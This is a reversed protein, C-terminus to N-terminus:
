IDFRETHVSEAPVGIAPLVREMSNMLPTPGCVFYQFRRYQRPLHRMLMEATIHGKEGAWGNDPEQLVYVVKLNMRTKLLEFDERFTVDRYDQSGYFLIVPRNDERMAMTECMSRVPTIGVGGGILVYGPGQQRDPSFVGYPGDVWIRTGPKIAPVVKGSWDGLARITFAVAGGAEKEASSSISIPHQEFHFPTRGVNLWAFQGPEFDFGEHGLPRLVLTQANGQEPITQSVQWPRQWLQIPRLIRYRVVIGFLLAIYAGWLCQMATSSSYHGIEVVHAVACPVVVLALGTHVLQWWEYSIKLHKRLVTLLVLLLLAWFAIVGWRWMWLTAGSFPSLLTWPYGNVFLFIPHALVFITAVYGMQRHFQQLADQGFAGAVSQVRAILAFEFSIIALGVYGCAVAFELGFARQGGSPRAVAGVILPFLILFLYLGFWFAGTAAHKM